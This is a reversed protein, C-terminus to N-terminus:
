AFERLSPALHHARVATLAAREIQRIRERTVGFRQGILELTAPDSGEQLGYRQRLVAGSRGGIAGLVEDLLRKVESHAATEELGGDWAVRESESDRLDELLVDLSLVGRVRTASERVSGSLVSPDTEMATAAHVPIRIIPVDNMRWRQIAQRIYWSVYTSVTFGLKYDWRVLGQMLGICGVQFADQM